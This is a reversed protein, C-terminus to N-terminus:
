KTKGLLTVHGVKRLKEGSMATIDAVYVYVGQECLRGKTTGNWGIVDDHSKFIEHGWRDFISLKIEAIAYGMPIFIENNVDGNPTFANPIFVDWDKTVTVCVVDTNKCGFSSIGELTYCTNNQPNVTATPCYNCTFPTGDSASIFGLQVYNLGSGLLTVTHDINITTDEGAYVTPLPNVTVQLTATSSCNNSSVGTVTYVFVGPGPPIVNTTSDHVHLVGTSPSWTYTNAGIAYLAAHSGECIIQAAGAIVTPNPIAVVQITNSSTCLYPATGNTGIVTYTTTQVPNAETTNSNVSSVSGSPSWTYNTAGNATITSTKGSCITLPNASTTITPTPVVTLDTTATGVCGLTSTGVVTYSQNSTPNAAVTSGNAASLHVM